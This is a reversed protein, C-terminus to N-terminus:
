ARPRALAIWKHVKVRPGLRGRLLVASMTTLNHELADVDVLLAPTQLEQIKM